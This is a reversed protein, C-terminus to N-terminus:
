ATYRRRHRLRELAKSIGIKTPYPLMRNIHRILMNHTAKKNIPLGVHDRIDILTGQDYTLTFTENCATIKYTNGEGTLRLGSVSIYSKLRDIDNQMQILYLSLVLLVGFFMCVTGSMVGLTILEHYESMVCGMM